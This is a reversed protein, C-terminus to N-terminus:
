VMVARLQYKLLSVRFAVFSYEKGDRDKQIRSALRIDILGLQIKFKVHFVLRSKWTRTYDGTGKIETFFGIIWVSLLDVKALEELFPLLLLSMNTVRKRYAVSNGVIRGVNRFM